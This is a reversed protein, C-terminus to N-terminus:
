PNSKKSKQSALPRSRTAVPAAAPLRTRQGSAQLRASIAQAAAVCLRALDPLRRAPVRYEPGAVTLAACCRGSADFIPTGVSHLGAELEGVNSAWGDHRIRVLQERLERVSTITRPTLAQLPGKDIPGNAFALLVKGNSTCHLPTRRGTWSGVGIIHPSDVQAINVVENGDLVALNVTEGTDAALQEMDDRAIAALNQGGLALLGLRGLEPGLRFRKDGPVRELFGRAALTAALRSATSKHVGLQRAFDGVALERQESGFGSLMRLVRDVTQIGNSEM